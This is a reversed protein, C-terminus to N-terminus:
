AQLPKRLFQGIILTVVVLAATLGTANAVLSTASQKVVIGALAWLIVLAFALDRRILNMLSAIVLVAILIVVMWIQPAIGFGSWKLFDLVDSVNAITAVTIWGLYISFPVRVAWTEAASSPVRGTGLYLYTVILSGLLVIMAALTLPFLEYHWLFIWSMNALGGLAIWWGTSQLRPNERQSPMAQYAAYALLGVYILGWISFVYGAPVFFVHFGDSIAGTNLGNIPLADALINVTITALVSAVVVVQRTLDRM